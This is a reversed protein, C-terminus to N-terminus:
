IINVNFCVHCGAGWAGIGNFQAKDKCAKVRNDSFRRAPGKIQSMSLTNLIGCGDVGSKAAAAM